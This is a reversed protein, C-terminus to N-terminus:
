KIKEQEYRLMLLAQKVSISIDVQTWGVAIYYGDITKFQMESEAEAHEKIPSETIEVGNCSMQKIFEQRYDEKDM